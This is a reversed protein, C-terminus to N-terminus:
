EIPYEKKALRETHVQIQRKAEEEDGPLALRNNFKEGLRKREERLRRGEFEQLQKIFGANPHAIERAGRVAKLAHKSDLDAITMLYAVTVTVSRSVGAVCHVLVNGGSLRAAHIFDNCRPFYQSLNQDKLDAAHICLYEVDPMNGKIASEEIFLIHTIGNEKIQEPDKADKWSGVFLGPLVRSM